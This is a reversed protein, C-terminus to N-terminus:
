AARRARGPVRGDAAGAGPPPDVAHASHAHRHRDSVGCWAALIIAAAENGYIWLMAAAPVRLPLTGIQLVLLIFAVFGFLPAAPVGALYFGVATLALESMGAGIIGIAVILIARHAADLALPGVGPGIRENLRMLAARTAPTAALVQVAILIGIALNAIASTLNTLQALAFRGVALVPGPAAGSSLLPPLSDLMKGWLADLPVGLLPLHALASPHRPLGRALLDSVIPWIENVMESLAISFYILPLALTVFALFGVIWAALHCRGGLAATLRKALPWTPTAVIAGRVFVNLFAALSRWVLIGLLLLVVIVIAAEIMRRRDAPDDTAAM